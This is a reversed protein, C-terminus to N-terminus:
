SAYNLNVREVYALLLGAFRYVANHHMNWLNEYSSDCDNRRYELMKDVIHQYNEFEVIKSSFDFHFPAEATFNWVRSFPSLFNQFNGVISFFLGTDGIAVPSTIGPNVSSLTIISNNSSSTPLSLPRYFQKQTHSYIQVGATNPIQSILFRNSYSNTSVSSLMKGFVLLKYDKPNDDDLYVRNFKFYDRILDLNYSLRSDYKKIEERRDTSDVIRLYCYLLFQKYYNSASEPFLINYFASLELPLDIKNFNKNVIPSVLRVMESSREYEGALDILYAEDTAIEANDSSLLLYSVATQAMSYLNLNSLLSAFHNVM